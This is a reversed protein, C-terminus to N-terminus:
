SEAPNASYLSDFIVTSTVEESGVSTETITGYHVYVRSYQRAHAPFSTM